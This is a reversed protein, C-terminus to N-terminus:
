PGAPGGEGGGPGGSEPRPALLSAFRRLFDQGYGGVVASLLWELLLEKDAPELHALCYTVQEDLAVLFGEALREVDTVQHAASAERVRAVAHDIFASAFEAVNTRRVHLRFSKGEALKLELERQM